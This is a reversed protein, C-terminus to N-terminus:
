LCFFVIWYYTKSAKLLNLISLSIYRPPMNDQESSLLLSIDNSHTLHLLWILLLDIM